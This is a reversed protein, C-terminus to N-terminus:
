SLSNWLKVDCQDPCELLLKSLSKHLLPHIWDGAIECSPLLAFRRLQMRPHPLTLLESDTITNNILLIDIDIIRPGYQENPNRQRGMETETQLAIRLLELPQYESKVVIAQNLFSQQDPMGWPETEYIQSKSIISIKNNSLTKCACALMEDRQGMNSGLMLLALNKTM